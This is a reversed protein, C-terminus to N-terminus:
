RRDAWVFTQATRMAQAHTAHDILWRDLAEAGCRFADLQHRPALRESVYRTM